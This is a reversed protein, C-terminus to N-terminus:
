DNILLPMILYMLTEEEYESIPHVLVAKEPQSFTMKLEESDVAALIDSLFTGKFGIKIVDSSDVALKEEANVSYDVDQGVLTLESKNLDVRVLQSAQNAFVIVRGLASRLEKTNVTMSKDNTQPIVSRYNPYRGELLQVNISFSDFNLRANNLGVSISIETEDKPLVNKIVSAIRSPLAFSFKGNQSPTKVTHLGLKHGDSAVFNISEESVEIFVANLVPRLEDNAVCFVTKELGRLFTSSEIKIEQPDKIDKPEPFTAVPKGIMQFKGGQYRITTELNNENIDFVIPQEPLTKLSDLLMKSELCLSIEGDANTSELATEIRGAADAATITLTGEKQEFLFCSMIPVVPKSSIIKSAALLHSFIVSKSITITM